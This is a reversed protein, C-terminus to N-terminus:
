FGFMKKLQKVGQEIQQERADKGGAPASEADGAARAGAGGCLPQYKPEVSSYSRGACHKLELVKREAPCFDAIFAFDQEQGASKCHSSLPTKFDVQCYQMAGELESRQAAFATQYGKRTSLRAGEAKTKACFDAKAKACQPNEPYLKGISDANRRDRGMADRRVKELADYQTFAGSGRPWKALAERCERAAEEAAEKARAAMEGQQTEMMAAAERPMNGEKAADCTGIRKGESEMTMIGDRTETVAKNRWRDKGMAEHEITMTADKCKVKATTKNGNQRTELVKCDKEQGKPEYKAGEALCVTMKGGGPMGPIVMGKPMEPMGPIEMRTNVEWLGDKGAANATAAL